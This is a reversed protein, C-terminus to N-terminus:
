QCTIAVGNTSFAFEAEKVGFAIVYCNAAAALGARFNAQITCTNSPVSSPAAEPSRGRLEFVTVFQQSIFQDFPVYCGAGDEATQGCMDKFAEYLRLLDANGASGYAYTPLQQGAYSVSASSYPISSIITNPPLAVQNMTTQTTYSAPRFLLALYQPSINGMTITANMSTAGSGVSIVQPCDASLWQYRTKTGLAAEKLLRAQVDVRATRTAMYLVCQSCQLYATTAVKNFILDSAAAPMLSIQVSGGWFVPTSEHCFSFISSLPIRFSAVRSAGTRQLRLVNALNFAPNITAVQADADGALPTLEVQQSGLNAAPWATEDAPVNVVDPYSLDATGQGQKVAQSTKVLKRLWQVPVQYSSQVEVSSGGIQLQGQRFFIPERVMSVQDAAAYASGDAKRISFSAEIFSNALDIYTSPNQYIYSIQSLANFNGALSTTPTVQVYTRGATEGPVALPKAYPNWFPEPITEYSSM